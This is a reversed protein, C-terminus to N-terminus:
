RKYVYADVRVADKLKIMQYLHKYKYANPNNKGLRGRLCIRYQQKYGDELLYKNMNKVLRRLSGIQTIDEDSDMFFTGIYSESRNKYTQKCM